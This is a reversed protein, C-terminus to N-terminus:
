GKPQESKEFLEGKAKKGHSARIAAQRADAMAAARDVDAKNEAIVEIFHQRIANAQPTNSADALEAEYRGWNPGTPQEPEPDTGNLGAAVEKETADRAAQHTPHYQRQQTEMDM